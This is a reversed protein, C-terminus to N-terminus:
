SCFYRAKNLVVRLRSIPNPDFGFVFLNGKLAEPEKRQVRGSPDGPRKVSVPELLDIYLSDMEPYYKPKM